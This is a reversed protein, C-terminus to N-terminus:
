RAEQVMKKHRRFPLNIVLRKATENRGQLERGWM